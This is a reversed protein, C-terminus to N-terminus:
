YSDIPRGFRQLACSRLLAPSTIRRCLPDFLQCVDDLHPSELAEPDSRRVKPGPGCTQAHKRSSLASSLSALM